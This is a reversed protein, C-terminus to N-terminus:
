KTWRYHCYNCHREVLCWEWAWYETHEGITATSFITMARGLLRCRKPQLNHSAQKCKIVSHLKKNSTNQHLSPHSKYKLCHRPWNWDDPHNTDNSFTSNSPQTGPAHKVCIRCEGSSKSRDVRVSTRPMYCVVTHRKILCTKTYYGGYKDEYASRHETRKRQEPRKGQCLM